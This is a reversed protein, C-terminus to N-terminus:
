LELEWTEHSSDVEGLDTDELDIPPEELLDDLDIPEERQALFRDAPGETFLRPDDRDEDLHGNDIAIDEAKQMAAELGQEAHIRLLDEREMLAEERVTERQIEDQELEYANLTLTSNEVRGGDGLWWKDARLELTYPDAPMVEFSYNVDPHLPELLHFDTGAFAERFQTVGPDDRQADTEMETIPENADVDFPNNM